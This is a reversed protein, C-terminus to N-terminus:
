FTRTKFRYSDYYWETSNLLTYGVLGSPIMKPLVICCSKTFKRLLLIPQLIVSSFDKQKKSSKHPM